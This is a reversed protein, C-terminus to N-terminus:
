AARSARGKRRFHRTIPIGAMLFVVGALLLLDAILTTSRMQLIGRLEPRVSFLPPLFGVAGGLGLALSVVGLAILLPGCWNEIFYDIM